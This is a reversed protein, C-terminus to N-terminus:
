KWYSSGSSPIESQVFRFEQVQLFPSLTSRAITNRQGKHTVLDFSAFHTSHPAKRNEMRQTLLAQAQNALDLWDCHIAPILHDGISVSKDDGITCFQIDEPIRLGLEVAVQVAGPLFEDQMVFIGDPRNPGELITRLQSYDAAPAESTYCFAFDRPYMTLSHDFMANMYGAFRQHTTELMDLMGTVGIQKCGQEALHSVAQRAMEFYDFTVLDSEVGRLKHDLVVTPIEALAKTVFESDIFGDFPWIFIGQFHKDLVFQLSAETGLVESDIHVLQVGKELLSTSMFRYLARLVMSSGDVFAVTPLGSGLRKIVTVGRNPINECYGSEVLASLARRITTRSVGFDSQLERETPLYQGAVFSGSEIQDRLSDAILRYSMQGSESSHRQKM